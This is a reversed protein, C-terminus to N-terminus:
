RGTQFATTSLTQARARGNLIETVKLLHDFMEADQSGGRSFHATGEQTRQSCPIVCGVGKASRM